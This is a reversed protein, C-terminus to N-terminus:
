ITHLDIGRRVYSLYRIKPFKKMFVALSFRFSACFKLSIKDYSFVYFNTKSRCRRHLLPVFHIVMPFKCTFPVYSKSVRSMFAAKTQPVLAQRSFNQQWYTKNKMLKMKMCIFDLKIGKKFNM